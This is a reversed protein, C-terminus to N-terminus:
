GELAIQQEIEKLKHEANSAHRSGPLSEIIQLLLARARAADRQHQWYVDALRTSLFAADDPPWERQLAAELIAAAGAADALHECSIKAIESYALPDAPDKELARRYAEIADEYDGRAMAALAHDHPGKEVPQSPQFFFNGVADGIAPMVMLVFLIGAAGGVLIVGGFLMIVRTADVDPANNVARAERFLVFALWALGAFLLLRPLLRM